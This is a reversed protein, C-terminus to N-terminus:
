LAFATNFKRAGASCVVLMRGSNWSCNVLLVVVSDFELCFALWRGRREKVLMDPVELGDPRAWHVTLLPRISMM